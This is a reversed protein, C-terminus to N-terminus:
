AAAPRRSGLLAQLQPELRGILTQWDDIPINPLTPLELQGRLKDALDSADGVRYLCAPTAALLAGMAGVDAAVVPLRCALMEYAKQPFCYRGFPSDVICM